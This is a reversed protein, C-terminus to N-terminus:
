FPVHSFQGIQKVTRSDASMNENGGDDFRSTSLMHDHMHAHRFFIFTELMHFRAVTDWKFDERKNNENEKKKLVGYFLGTYLLKLFYWSAHPMIKPKECKQLHRSSM